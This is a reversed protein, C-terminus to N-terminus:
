FASVPLGGGDIPIAQGTIFGAKESVLHAVTAAIEEPQGHRGVPIFKAREALGEDVDTWGAKLTSSIARDTRISGPCICNM